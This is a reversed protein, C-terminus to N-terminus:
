RSSRSETAVALRSCGALKFHARKEGDYAFFQQFHPPRASKEKSEENRGTEDKEVRESGESIRGMVRM